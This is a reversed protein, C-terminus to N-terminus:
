NMTNKMVFFILRKIARRLLRNFIQREMFLNRAAKGHEVYIGRFGKLLCDAEGTVRYCLLDLFVKWFCLHLVFCFAFSM